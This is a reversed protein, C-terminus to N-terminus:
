NLQWSHIQMKIKLDNRVLNLKTPLWVGSNKVYQNYTVQWTDGQIDKITASIIRDLEDYKIQASEPRGKLWSPADNVPFSLNTLRSLMNQANTDRYTKSDYDLQASYKTQTLLLIQTGIFTTLKLKFDPTKNDGHNQWSFNVSPPREKKSIFALKGNAKWKAQNDLHAQWNSFIRQKEPITNACGSIFLFFMLLILYLRM